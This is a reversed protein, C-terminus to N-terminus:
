FMLILIVIICFNMLNIAVKFVQLVLIIVVGGGFKFSCLTLFCFFWACFSPSGVTHHLIRIIFRLLVRLVLDGASQSDWIWNGVESALM